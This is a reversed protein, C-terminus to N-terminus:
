APSLGPEGPVPDNGSARDEGVRRGSTSRKPAPPKASGDSESRLEEARAGALLRQVEDGTVTEHLLLSRAV